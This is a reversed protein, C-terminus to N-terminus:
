HERIDARLSTVLDTLLIPWTGSVLQLSLSAKDRRREAEEPSDAKALQSLDYHVGIAQALAVRVDDLAFRTGESGFADVYGGHSVLAAELAVFADLAQSASGSLLAALHGAANSVDVFPNVIRKLDENRRDFDRQARRDEADSERLTRTLNNNSRVTFIAVVASSVAVVIATWEM